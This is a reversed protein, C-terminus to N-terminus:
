DNRRIRSDSCVQNSFTKSTTETKTTADSVFSMYSSSKTITALLRVPVPEFWDSINIATVDSENFICFSTLYDSDTPCCCGFQVIDPSAGATKRLTIGGVGYQAKLSIAM